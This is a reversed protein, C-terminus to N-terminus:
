NAQPIVSPAHGIVTAARGGLQALREALEDAPQPGLVAEREGLARREAPEVALPGCLTLSRAATARM